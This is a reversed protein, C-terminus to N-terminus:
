GFRGRRRFSVAALVLGAVMAALGGGILLPTDRGPATGGGGTAPGHSPALPVVVHLVGTAITKKDPCTLTLQYDGVKATVPVITTATLFGHDPKVTLTGSPSGTVTAALLNEVCSARIAVQEGAPVTSPNVEVFPSQAASASPNPATEASAPATGLFLVTAGLALATAAAPASTRM